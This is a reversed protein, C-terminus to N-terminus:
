AHSGGFARARSDDTLRYFTQQRGDRVYIIEGSARLTSIAGAVEAPEGGMVNEIEQRCLAGIALLKRLAEARTM